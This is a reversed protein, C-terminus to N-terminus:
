ECSSRSNECQAVDAIAAQREQQAHLWPKTSVAVCIQRQPVDVEAVQFISCFVLFVKKVGGVKVM